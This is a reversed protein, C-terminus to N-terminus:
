LRFGPFSRSGVKQGGHEIERSQARLQEGTQALTSKKFEVGGKPTTHRRIM